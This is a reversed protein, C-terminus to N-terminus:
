KLLEITASSSSVLNTLTLANYQLSVRFKSKNTFILQENSMELEQRHKSKTIKFKNGFYYEVKEARDFVGVEM